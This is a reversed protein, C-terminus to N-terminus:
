KKPKKNKRYRLKRNANIQQKNAKRYDRNILNNTCKRSCTKSKERKAWFIRGCYECIRINEYFVKERQFIGMFESFHPRFFGESDVSLYADFPLTENRGSIGLDFIRNTLDANYDIIQLLIQRARIIENFRITPTRLADKFGKDFYFFIYRAIEINKIVKRVTRELQLGLKGAEIEWKLFDQSTWKDSKGILNLKEKIRLNEQQLTEQIKEINEDVLFNALDIFKQLGEPCVYKRRSKDKDIEM